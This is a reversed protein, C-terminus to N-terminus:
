YISGQYPHLFQNTGFPDTDIVQPGTLNKWFTDANTGYVKPDIFHRNFQNLGFIFGGVELAPILYSKGTGTEWSLLPKPAEPAPEEAFGAASTVLALALFVPSSRGDSSAPM